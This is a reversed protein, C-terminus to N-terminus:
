TEQPAVLKLWSSDIGSEATTKHMLLLSFVKALMNAFDRQQRSGTREMPQEMSVAAPVLASPSLNYKSLLICCDPVANTDQRITIHSKKEWDLRIRHNM